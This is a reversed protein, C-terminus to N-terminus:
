VAARLKSKELLYPSSKLRPAVALTHVTIRINIMRNTILLSLIVPIIPAAISNMAMSDKIVNRATSSKYRQGCKGSFRRGNLINVLICTRFFSYSISINTLSITLKFAETSISLSNLKPVTILLHPYKFYATVSLAYTSFM